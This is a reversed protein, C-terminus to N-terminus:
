TGLLSKMIQGKARFDCICPQVMPGPILRPSVKMSSHDETRLARRKPISAQREMFVSVLFHKRKFARLRPIPAQREMSFLVLSHKRQLARRGPM